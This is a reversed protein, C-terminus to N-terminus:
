EHTKLYMKRNSEIINKARTYWKIIAKRLEQSETGKHIKLGKEARDIAVDLVKVGQKYAELELPLGVLANLPNAKLGAYEELLAVVVTENQILWDNEDSTQYRKIFEKAGM